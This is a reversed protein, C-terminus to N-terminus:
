HATPSTSSSLAISHPGPYLSPDLEAEYGKFGPASFSLERVGSGLGSFHFGGAANTTVSRTTMSRYGDDHRQVFRMRIDVGQIPVGDNGTVMGFLQQSGIDVVLECSTLEGPSLVLGVIMINPVSRSLLTMRGPIFNSLSFMGSQDSSIGASYGSWEESVALLELAPVANGLQDQIVCQLSTRTTYELTIDLNEGQNGLTMDYSDFPIYRPASEVILHYDDAPQVQKLLFSGDAGSQTTFRIGASISNLQLRAFPVPNDFEDSVSGSM